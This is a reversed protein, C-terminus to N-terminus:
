LNWKNNQLLLLLRKKVQEYEEDFVSIKFLVREIDGTNHVAHMVQTNLLANTYLESHDIFTIPCDGTLVFNLSCLTGRDKHIGLTSNADLIIFRPRADTLSLKDKVKLFLDYTYGETIHYHHMFSIIRQRKPDFFPAFNDRNSNVDNLILDRDVDIDFKHLNM